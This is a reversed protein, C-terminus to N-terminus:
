VDSDIFRVVVKGDGATRFVMLSNKFWSETAALRLLSEQHHDRFLGKANMKAEIYENSRVNVHGHGGQGPVAWSLVVMRLAAGTVLQIMRDEFQRPIHEGVELCLVLDASQGIADAAGPDTFDLVQGMGGSLSATDPHGDFGEVSIGGMDPQSLREIYRGLGCGLDIVSRYGQEIVMHAIADALADDHVHAESVDGSWAGSPLIEMM